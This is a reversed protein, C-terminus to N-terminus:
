FVHQFPIKNECESPKNEPHTSNPLLKIGILQQNVVNYKKSLLKM